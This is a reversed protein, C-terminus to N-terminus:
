PAFKAPHHSAANSTLPGRGCTCPMDQDDPDGPDDPCGPRQVVILLSSLTVVEGNRVTRAIPPPVSYTGLEPKEGDECIPVISLLRRGPSIVFDTVGRNAICDFVDVGDVELEDSADSTWHLEVEAILADGCSAVPDGTSSRLSWSFEAAAGNVEICGGIATILFVFCVIVTSARHGPVRVDVWSLFVGNM